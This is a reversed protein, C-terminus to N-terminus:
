AKFCYNQKLWNLCTELKNARLKVVEDIKCNFTGNGTASLEIKTIENAKITENTIEKIDLIDVPLLKQNILYKIIGEVISNAILEHNNHIWNAEEKNSIFGVEVLASTMNTRKLVALGRVDAKSGRNTKGTNKILTDQIFNAFILGQKSLGYYLTEIGHAQASASNLHISLMLDAKTSNITSVLKNLQTNSDINGSQQIVKMEINTNYSDFIEKVVQAIKAAEEHEKFGNGCAGPDPKGNLSHGPNIIILM